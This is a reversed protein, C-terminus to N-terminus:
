TWCIRFDVLSSIRFVSRNVKKCMGFDTLKAHGKKTLMVNDPKIDRHLIGKLSSDCLLIFPDMNCFFTHFSNLICLEMSFPFPLPNTKCFVKGHLFELALVLESMYFAARSEKFRGQLNFEVAEQVSKKNRNQFGQCHSPLSRWRICVGHRLFAEGNDPVFGVHQDPVQMSFRDISHIGTSKFM